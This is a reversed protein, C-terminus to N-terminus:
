TKPITFMFISGIEPTSEVWIRGGHIEVIKKCYALGIGTGEYESRKHLRQFIIFILDNNKKDIGIGNDQVSFHWYKEFSEATICIELQMDKKRFKIANSVLNHFLLRLETAYGDLIPLKRVTIKVNNNKISNDLDQLVESIIQNCDIATKESEKGLLSYDFLDKIMKSMRLAASHIFNLYQNGDDDLKGSYDDHLLQTFQTLTRLPEQLDHNSVYAFQNLESITFSLENNATSLEDARKEKEKNQFALEVNAISLEDARKEKEKNQFALEVNAISLEDARKGKEENQLALEVNLKDLLLARYLTNFYFLSLFLLLISIIFGTLLVILVKGELWPYQKKSQNFCLIWKKGNFEIPLTVAMNASNQNLIAQNKQSDFLLSNASKCEDYVRLQMRKDRYEDRVGLIGQM